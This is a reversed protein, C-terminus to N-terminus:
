KMKEKKTSTLISALEMEIEHIGTHALAIRLVDADYSEGEITLTKPASDFCQSLRADGFVLRKTFRRALMPFDDREADSFCEWRGKLAMKLLRAAKSSVPCITPNCFGLGTLFTKYRGTMEVLSEKGTDISDAKNLVFLVPTGHPRVVSSYLEKLLDEEDTTCLQEANAVYVVVDPCSERLFKKTVLHHKRDGSNNTGPTDHVVVKFGENNIGDLDGQLFIRAINKSSNWNNIVLSDVNPNVGAFGGSSDEAFGILGEAGDKDYVSTIKATAASNRAPLVDMGLLANVFTSKGASMTACVVCNKVPLNAYETEAHRFAAFASYSKALFRCMPLKERVGRMFRKYRVGDPNMPIVAFPWNQEDPKSMKLKCFNCFCEAEAYLLWGLRHVLMLLLIALVIWLLPIFCFCFGVTAGITLPWKIFGFTAKLRLRGAEKFDGNLVALLAANFVESCQNNRTASNWWLNIRQSRIFHMVAHSIFRMQVVNEDTQQSENPKRKAENRRESVKKKMGTAAGMGTAARCRAPHMFFPREKGGGHM